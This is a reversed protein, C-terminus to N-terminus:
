AGQSGTPRYKSRYLSVLIIGIGLGKLVGDTFDGLKIFHDVVFTLSILLLGIPLLIKNFSPKKM